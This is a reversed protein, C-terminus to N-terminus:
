GRHMGEAKVGGRPQKAMDERFVKAIRDPEMSTVDHRIHVTVEVPVQIPEDFPGKRKKNWENIAHAQDVRTMSRWQLLREVNPGEGAELLSLSEYAEDHTHQAERRQVQGWWEIYGPPPGEEPYLGVLRTVLPTADDFPARHNLRGVDHLEAYRFHPIGADYLRHNVALRGAGDLVLSVFLQAFHIKMRLEIEILKELVRDLHEKNPQLELIRLMYRAETRAFQDM